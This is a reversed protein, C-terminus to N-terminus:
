KLLPSMVGRPLRRGGAGPAAPEDGVRLQYCQCPGRPERSRSALFGVRQKEKLTARAVGAEWRQAWPCSQAPARLSAMVLGAHGGRAAM